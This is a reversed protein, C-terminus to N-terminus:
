IGIGSMIHCPFAFMNLLIECKSFMAYLPHYKLVHLVIRLHNIREGECKSYILIYDISLVVFADLYHRFMINMLNIFTMPANTLESSIVM